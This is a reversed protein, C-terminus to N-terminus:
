TPLPPTLALARTRDPGPNAGPEQLRPAQAFLAAECKGGEEGAAGEAAAAPHEQSPLVPTMAQLLAPEVAIETPPAGLATCLASVQAGRKKLEHTRRPQAEAAREAAGQLARAGEEHRTM